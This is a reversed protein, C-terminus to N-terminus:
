SGAPSSLIPWTPMALRRTRVSSTARRDDSIASRTLRAGFSNARAATM